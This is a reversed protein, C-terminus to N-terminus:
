MFLSTTSAGGAENAFFDNTLGVFQANGVNLGTEEYVERIATQEWTEGFEMHGGPPAWTDAGHAGVRKIMLFEGNKTVFVGVGVRVNKKM